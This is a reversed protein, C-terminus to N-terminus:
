QKYSIRYILGAKDDGVYLAEDPGVDLGVPRGSVSRRAADLWGTAVDELPGRPKSGDLPLRVVQYGTPNSRNWSGHFAIFL